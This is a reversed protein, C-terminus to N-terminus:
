SAPTFLVELQFGNERAAAQLDRIRALTAEAEKRDTHICCFVGEPDTWEAIAKEGTLLRQDHCADGVLYIWRKKGVRALLNVHGPLHGPADVVYVSGDGIFDYMWLDGIKGWGSNREGEVEPRGDHSLLVPTSAFERVNLGDFLKSEFHQHGLGGGLGNKLVDLAGSGVWFQAQPYDAPTGTHDWHVHSLIVHSIDLPQVGGDILSQQVDPSTSMPQRTHLHERIPTIYEQLNRRLGLDFLINKPGSSSDEHVLLFSLSSVLSRDTKSVNQIFLHLPLTFTGGHLASAKVTTKAHQELHELATTAQASM